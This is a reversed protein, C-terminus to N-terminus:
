RGGYVTNIKEVADEVIDIVAESSITAGAITQVEKSDSPETSVSKYDGFPKDQYNSRYEEETIRAGLGPTEEHAVISINIVESSDLDVGVMVDIIGNYGAGSHQTAVGIQKGEDDYAEYFTEGDKEVEEVKELGPLVENIADRRKEEDNAAIYPSTWQFVFTLLLASVIGITTLTLILNLNSNKEM